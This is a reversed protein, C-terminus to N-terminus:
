HVSVVGKNVSFNPNNEYGHAPVFHSFGPRFSERGRKFLPFKNHGEIHSFSWAVEYFSGWFM